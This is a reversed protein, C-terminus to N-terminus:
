KTIIIIIAWFIPIFVISLNLWLDTVTFWYKAKRETCWPNEIREYYNYSLFKIFKNIKGKRKKFYPSQSM